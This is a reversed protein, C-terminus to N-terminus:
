LMLCLEADPAASFSSTGKEESSCFRLYCYGDAMGHVPSPGLDACVSLIPITGTPTIVYMINLIDNSAQPSSSHSSAIPTM